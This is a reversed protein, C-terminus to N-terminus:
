QKQTDRSGFEDNCSEEEMRDYRFSALNFLTIRLRIWVGNMIFIEHVINFLITSPYYRILLDHYFLM